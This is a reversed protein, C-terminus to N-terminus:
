RRREMVIAKRRWGLPELKRAMGPRCVAEITYAGLLAAYDDLLGQVTLSWLDFDRGAACVVMLAKGKAREDCALVLAAVVDTGRHVAWLQKSGHLIDGVLEQETLSDGWGHALARLAQPRIQSWVALASSPPVASVSLPETPSAVGTREM